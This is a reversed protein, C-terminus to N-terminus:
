HRSLNEPDLTCAWFNGSHVIFSAEGVLNGNANIM